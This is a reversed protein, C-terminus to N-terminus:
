RTIGAFYVDDLDEEEMGWNLSKHLPASRNNMKSFLKNNFTPQGFTYVISTSMPESEEMQKILSEINIKVAPKQISPYEVDPPVQSNRRSFGGPPPLALLNNLLSKDSRAPTPQQM